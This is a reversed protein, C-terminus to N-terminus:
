DFQIDIEKFNNNSCRHVMTIKLTVMDSKIFFLQRVFGFIVSINNFNM